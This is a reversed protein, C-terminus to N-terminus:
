WLRLYPSFCPGFARSVCPWHLSPCHDHKEARSKAKCGRFETFVFEARTERGILTDCVRPIVRNWTITFRVSRRLCYRPLSAFTFALIALGTYSPLRCGKRTERPELLCISRNDLVPRDVLVSRGEGLIVVGRVERESKSSMEM